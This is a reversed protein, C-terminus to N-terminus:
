YEEAEGIDVNVSFFRKFANIFDSEDLYFIEEYEPPEGPDGNSQYQCGSDSFRKGLITATIDIGDKTIDIDSDDVGLTNLADYIKDTDIELHVKVTKQAGSWNGM